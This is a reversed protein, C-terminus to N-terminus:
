ESVQVLTRESIERCANLNLVELTEPFKALNIHEDNVASFTFNLSKLQKGIRRSCIRRVFHESVGDGHDMHNLHKVLGDKSYHKFVLFIDRATLSMKIWLGVSQNYDFIKLFLKGKMKNDPIYEEAKTSEVM